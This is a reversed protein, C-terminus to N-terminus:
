DINGYGAYICCPHHAHYNGIINGLKGSRSAAGWGVIIARNNDCIVRLIGELTTMIKNHITKGLITETNDKRGLIGVGGPAIIPCLDIVLYSVGQFFLEMFKYFPCGEYLGFPAFSCVIIVTVPQNNCIHYRLNPGNLTKIAAISESDVDNKSIIEKILLYTNWEDQVM